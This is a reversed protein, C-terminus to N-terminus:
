AWSCLRSTLAQRSSRDGCDRALWCCPRSLSAMSGQLELSSSPAAVAPSTSCEWRQVCWPATFLIRAMGWCGVQTAVWASIPATM